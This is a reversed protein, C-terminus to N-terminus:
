QTNESPFFVIMSLIFSRSLYVYYLAEGYSISYLCTQTQIFNCCYTYTKKTREWKEFLEQFYINPTNKM